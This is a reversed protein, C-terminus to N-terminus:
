YHHHRNIKHTVITPILCSDASRASVGLVKGRQSSEIKQRMAFFHAIQRRRYGTERSQDNARPNVPNKSNDVIFRFSLAIILRLHKRYHCAFAASADSIFLASSRM